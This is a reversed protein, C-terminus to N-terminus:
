GGRGPSRPRDAPSSGGASGPATRSGRSSGARRPTLTAPRSALERPPEVIRHERDVDLDRLVQRTGAPWEIRVEDVREAEGLGFHLRRSSGSLYGSGTAVVRTQWREGTRLRLRTGVADRNSRAGRLEFAIWHGAEGRNHLLVPPQAYNRIVLDLRGDRDHDFVALGRGDEIRDAGSVFGVESFTGDGENRFLCNRERGNLSHDGIDLLFGEDTELRRGVGELM